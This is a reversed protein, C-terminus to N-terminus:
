TTPLRRATKPVVPRLPPSQGPWTDQRDYASDRLIGSPSILLTM